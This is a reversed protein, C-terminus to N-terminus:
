ETNIIKKIGGSWPGEKFSDQTHPGRLFSDQNHPGRLVPGRLCTCFADADLDPSLCDLLLHEERFYTHAFQLAM